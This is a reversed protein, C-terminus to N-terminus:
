RTTLVWPISCAWVLPGSQLRALWSGAPRVSKGPSADNRIYDSLNCSNEVQVVSRDALQRTPKICSVLGSGSGKAGFERHFLRLLELEDDIEFGGLLDAQRNRRIHQHSRISHDLSRRFRLPSALISNFEGV